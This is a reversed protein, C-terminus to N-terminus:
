EFIYYCGILMDYRWEHGSGNYFSLWSLEPRLYVDFKKNLPYGFEPVASISIGNSYFKTWLPFNLYLRGHDARIGMVVMPQVGSTAQSRDDGQIRIMTELGLGAYTTMGSSDSGFEYCGHITLDYDHGNAISRIGYARLRAYVRIPSQYGMQSHFCADTVPYPYRNRISGVAVGIHKYPSRPGIKRAHLVDTCLLLTLIVSCMWKM